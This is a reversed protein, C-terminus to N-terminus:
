APKRSPAAQLAHVFAGVGLIEGAAFISWAFPHPLGGAVINRFDWIFSLVVLLGGLTLAGWHSLRMPVSCRLAILGTAIISLSVIVPALVPASWPVPILFLVDWTLLSGPWGTLARLFVYYFLDWTGFAVAFAPLWNSAAALAVGLLMMLTAAERVVEIGVLRATEPAAARLQERTSLPFLDGASRNPNVRLRIPEYMTRLYLVVSAEVYGFAAGFLLLGIAKRRWDNRVTVEM